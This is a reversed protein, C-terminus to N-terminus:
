PSQVLTCLRAVAAAYEQAVGRGAEVVAQANAGLRSRTEEDTLLEQLTPALEDHRVQRMAGAALLDRTEAAFNDMHPGAIVAKGLAAPELLNQGGKPVFSGGMIVLASGAMFEPLEGFTDALYIETEASVADGRSRVAVARDGLHKMIARLRQPHRPAIVLLYSPIAAREWADVILREEDDRTSAAIVYPRGLNARGVGGKEPASAFKINGIVQVREAPAGLRIFGERDEASRTLIASVNALSDAYLRRLWQPARLTRPSVRGNVIVLPVGCEACGQYLNPWLETEVILACRPEVRQLFRSVGGVRDLPLYQHEIPACFKARVAAGGSITGTTLVVPLHPFRARLETILPVVANVEGVSAAHVWLPSKTKTARAFGLRERLYRFSKHRLAIWSAHAAILPLLAAFLWRYGLLRTNPGAM